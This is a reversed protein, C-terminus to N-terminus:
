NIFFLGAYVPSKKIDYGFKLSPTCLFMSHVGEEEM